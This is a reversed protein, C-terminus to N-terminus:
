RVLVMSHIGRTVPVQYPMRVLETRSTDLPDQAIRWFHVSGGRDQTDFHDYSVVALYNGSADFAAAEPLIGDFPFDGIRNLAGTTADLRLLTVSSFWTIRPDSYPLFSRELNTTAVFRGDPSVALGEPSVGTLARSVLAHRPQGDASLGAELRISNVSGRPAENWQGEVDAGWFLNNVLLVRGDATFRAMYPAKELKVTNGWSSLQTASRDTSLQVFEVSAATENVLALIRRSPHFEAHILREGSRWGPVKPYTPTGLRGNEFPILALPTQSGAGAPNIALAILSGDASVSVSDPREAVPLEQVLKPTATDLSFVRLRNGHKLDDFTQKAEPGEPRPRFTEVVFAYRGDPTVAVAVPPGAVSNSAEAEEVRLARPHGGLRILGIADRGERPGLKGDVYASALMDADSLTVLYRGQFDFPADNASHRNQSNAPLALSALAATLLVFLSKHM